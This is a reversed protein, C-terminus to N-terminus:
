YIYVHCSCLKIDVETCEGFGNCMCAFGVHVPLTLYHHLIAKIQVTPLRLVYRLNKETEAINHDINYDPKM